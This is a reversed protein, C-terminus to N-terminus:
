KEIEKKKIKEKEEMEKEYKDLLKKEYKKLNEVYHKTGMKNGEDDWGEIYGKEKKKLAEFFAYFLVALEKLALPNKEAKLSYVEEKYPGEYWKRGGKMYERVILKLKGRDEIYEYDNIISKRKKLKYTIEKLAKLPTYEVKKGKKIEKGEELKKEIREFFDEFRKKKDKKEM